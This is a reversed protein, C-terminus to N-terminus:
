RRSSGWHPAWPASSAATSTASSSPQRSCCPSASGSRRPAASRSCGSRSWTATPPSTPPPSSTSCRPESCSTSSGPPGISSGRRCRSGSDPSSGRPRPAPDARRLRLRPRLVAPGVPDDHGGHVRRVPVVGPQLPLGAPEGTAASYLNVVSILQSKYFGLYVVAVALTVYKLPVSKRHFSVLALTAFAAFLALDPGQDRLLMGWTEDEEEDEFDWFDEAPAEEAPQVAGAVSPEATSWAAATATASASM